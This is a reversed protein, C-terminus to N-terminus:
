SQIISVRAIVLTKVKSLQPANFVWLSNTWYIEKLLLVNEDCKYEYLLMQMSTRIEM